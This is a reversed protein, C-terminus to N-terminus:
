RKDLLEVRGKFQHEHDRYTFITDTVMKEDNYILSKRKIYTGLKAKAIRLCEQMSKVEVPEDAKSQFRLAMPENNEYYMTCTGATASLTGFLAIAVFFKM